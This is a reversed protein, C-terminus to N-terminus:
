LWAHLDSMILDCVPGYSWVQALEKRGWSHASNGSEWFTEIVHVSEMLLGDLVPIWYIENSLIPKGKSLKRLLGFLHM